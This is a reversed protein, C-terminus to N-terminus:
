TKFGGAGKRTEWNSQDQTVTGLVGRMRAEEQGLHKGEWMAREASDGTKDANIHHPRTAIERKGALGQVLSCTM